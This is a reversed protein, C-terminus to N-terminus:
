EEDGSKNNTKDRVRDVLIKGTLADILQYDFYVDRGCAMIAKLKLKMVMM